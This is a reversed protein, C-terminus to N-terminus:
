MRMVSGDPMVMTAEANKGEHQKQKLMAFMMKMNCAQKRAAAMVGSPVTGSYCNM